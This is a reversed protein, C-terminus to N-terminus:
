GHSAKVMRALATDRLIRYTEQRIREPQSPKEIDVALLTHKESLAQHFRFENGVKEFRPNGGYKKYGPCHRQIVQYATREYNHWNLYYAFDGDRLKTLQKFIDAWPAKGGLVLLAKEVQSLSVRGFSKMQCDM